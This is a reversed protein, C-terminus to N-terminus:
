SQFQTASIQAQGHTHARVVKAFAKDKAFGETQLKPNSSKILTITNPLSQTANNHHHHRHHLGNNVTSASCCYCCVRISQEFILKKWIFLLPKQWLSGPLRKRESSSHPVFQFKNVKSSTLPPSFFLCLNLKRTLLLAGATMKPALYFLTAGRHKRSQERILQM